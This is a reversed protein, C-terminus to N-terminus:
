LDKYVYVKNFFFNVISYAIVSLFQAKFHQFDSDLAVRFVFLSLSLSVLFGLSFRLLRIGSTKKHFVVSANLWFSLFAGLSYVLTLAFYNNIGLVDHFLFILFVGLITLGIGVM